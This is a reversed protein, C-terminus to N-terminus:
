DVFVPVVEQTAVDIMGIDSMKIEPAVPLALTAIRLLPNELETLGVERDAEKM